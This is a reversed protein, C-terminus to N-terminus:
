SKGHCVKLNVATTFTLILRWGKGKPLPPPPPPLITTPTPTHADLGYHRVLTRPGLRASLHQSAPDAQEHVVQHVPSPIMVPPCPPKYKYGGLGSPQFLLAKRYVRYAERFKIGWDWFALAGRLLAASAASSSTSDLLSVVLLTEVLEGCGQGNAGVRSM